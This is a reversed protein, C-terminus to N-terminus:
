SGVSRGRARHTVDAWGATREWRYFVLSSATRSITLHVTGDPDISFGKTSVENAPNQKAAVEVATEYTRQLDKTDDWTTSAERAAFAGADAVTAKTSAVSIADFLVISLLALVVTLKTLWGLVIGGTDDRHLRRSRPPPPVQAPRMTLIETAM